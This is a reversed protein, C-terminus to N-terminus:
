NAAYEMVLYPTDNYFGAALIPLIHPHHLQRLPHVEQLFNDREEQVSMPTTYLWKIVVRQGHEGSSSKEGLLIRSFTSSSLETIQRYDGFSASKNHDKKPM